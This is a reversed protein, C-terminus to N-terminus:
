VTGIDSVVGCVIVNVTYLWNSEVLVAVAVIARVGVMATASFAVEVESVAPCDVESFAVTVPLVFM